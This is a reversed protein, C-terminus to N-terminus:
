RLLADVIGGHQKAIHLHPTIGSKSSSIKAIQQGAHIYKGNCNVGTYDKQHTFV